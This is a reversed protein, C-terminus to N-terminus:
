KTAEQQRIGEKVVEIIALLREYKHTEKRPLSWEDGDIACILDINEYISIDGEEFMSPISAYLKRAEDKSFDDDKRREIVLSKLHDPIADFDTESMEMGRGLKGSLYYKDCSLFFSEITNGEGM